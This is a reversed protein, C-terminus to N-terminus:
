HTPRVRSSAASRLPAAPGDAQERDVKPAASVCFVLRVKVAPKIFGSLCQTLEKVIKM